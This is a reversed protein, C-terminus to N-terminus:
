WACRPPRGGFAPEIVGTFGTPGTWTARHKSGHACARGRNPALHTAAASRRRRTYRASRRREPGAPSSLAGSRCQRFTRYRPVEPPAPGRSPRRPGPRTRSSVRAGTGSIAPRGVREVRVGIAALFPSALRGDGDWVLRRVDGPGSGAGETCSVALQVGVAGGGDQGATERREHPNLDTDSSRCRVPSCAGFWQRCRQLAPEDGCSRVQPVFDPVDEDRHLHRVSPQLRASPVERVGDSQRLRLRATAGSPRDFSSDTADHFEDRSRHREIDVRPDGRM